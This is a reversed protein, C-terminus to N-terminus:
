HAGFVGNGEMVRAVQEAFLDAGIRAPDVGVLIPAREFVNLM